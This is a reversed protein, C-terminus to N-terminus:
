KFERVIIDWDFGERELDDIENHYSRIFLDRARQPSTAVNANNVLFRLVSTIEGDEVKVLIGEYVKNMKNEENKIRNILDYVDKECENMEDVWMEKTM